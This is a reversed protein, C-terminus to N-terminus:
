EAVAVVAFLMGVPLAESTIVIVVLVFVFPVVVGDDDPAAAAAEIVVGITEFNPM